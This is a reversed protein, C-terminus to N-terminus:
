NYILMDGLVCIQKLEPQKATKSPAQGCYDSRHLSTKIFPTEEEYYQMGEVASPRLHQISDNVKWKGCLILQATHPLILM